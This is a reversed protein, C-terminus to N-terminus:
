FGQSHTVLFIMPKESRKLKRALYRLITEQEKVDIELVKFSFDPNVM